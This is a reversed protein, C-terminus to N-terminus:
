ITQIESLETKLREAWVLSFQELKLCNPGLRVKQETQDWSDSIWINSLPVMEAKFNLGSRGFDSCLFTWNESTWQIYM